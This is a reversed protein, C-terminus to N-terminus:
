LDSRMKQKITVNFRANETKKWMWHIDFMLLLSSSFLSIAQKSNLKWKRGSLFINHCFLGLFFCAWRYEWMQLQLPVLMKTWLIKRGIQSSYIKCIEKRKLLFFAGPNYQPNLVFPSFVLKESLSAPAEWQLGLSLFIIHIWKRLLIESKFSYSWWHCENKM